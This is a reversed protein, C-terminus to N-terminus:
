NIQLALPVGLDVQSTALPDLREVRRGLRVRSHPASSGRELQHRSLCLNEPAAVPLGAMPCKVELQMPTLALVIGPSGLLLQPRM